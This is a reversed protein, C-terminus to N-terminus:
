KDEVVGIVQGIRGVLGGLDVKGGQDQGQGQEARARCMYNSCSLKYVNSFSKYLM